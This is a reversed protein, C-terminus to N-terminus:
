QTKKWDATCIDADLKCPCGVSTFCTPKRTVKQGEGDHGRVDHRERRHEQDHQDHVEDHDRLRPRREPRRDREQREDRERAAEREDDAVQRDDIAVDLM